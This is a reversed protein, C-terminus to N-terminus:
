AFYRIAQQAADVSGQVVSAALGHELPGAPQNLSTCPLEGMGSAQTLRRTVEDALWTILQDLVEPPFTPATPSPLTVDDSLEM